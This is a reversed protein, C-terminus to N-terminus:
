KIVFTIMINIFLIEKVKDVNCLYHPNELYGFRKEINKLFDWRVYIWSPMLWKMGGGLSEALKNIELATDRTIELSSKFIDM